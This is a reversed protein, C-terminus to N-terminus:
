LEYEEGKIFVKNGRKEGIAEVKVVKKEADVDYFVRFNGVRM